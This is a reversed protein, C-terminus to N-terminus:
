KDGTDNTRKQHAREYNYISMRDWTVGRKKVSAPTGALVTYEEEFAKTVLSGMGVVTNAPIRANKGLLVNAGIWCHDGVTIPGSPRNIIEGTEKDLLTHGDDSRFLINEALMCNKGIIVGSTSDPRFEASGITTGAGIKCIQGNGGSFLVKTNYLSPSPGIEVYVNNSKIHIEDNQGTIPLHLLVTNNDGLIRIDFGQPPVSQIIGNEEVLIRNGKGCIKVSKTPLHAARWRHRADRDPIFNSLFQMLAKKM